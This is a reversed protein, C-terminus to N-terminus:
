NPLYFLYVLVFEKLEKEGATRYAAFNIIKIIMSNVKM